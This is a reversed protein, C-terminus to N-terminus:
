DLHILSESLTWTIEELGLCLSPLHDALLFKQYLEVYFPTKEFILVQWLENLNSVTWPLM